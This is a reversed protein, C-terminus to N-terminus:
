KKPFFKRVVSVAKNYIAIPRNFKMDLIWAVNEDKEWKSRNENFKIQIENWFSKNVYSYTLFSKMEQYTNRNVNFGYQNPDGGCVLIDLITRYCKECASCNEGAHRFWCVKLKIPIDKEKSFRIINEAKDTRELDSDISKMKCSCFRIADLLSQNNADFVKSGKTYSSALMNTDIRKIYAYPALLSVMALVHAISAWWGHNDKPPLKLATLKSIERENYMERCNSKIFTYKIELQRSLEQLYCELDYHTKYDGLGVDGGWINVLTMDKEYVSALASTADLGGTFFLSKNNDSVYSCDMMKETEVCFTLKLHPFMTQYVEKIKPISEYFVKDICAVKVGCDTLMAITLMNAVFPVTLVAEPVKELDVDDSYNIFLETSNLFRKIKTPVTYKYQVGGGLM